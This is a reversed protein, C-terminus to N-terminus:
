KKRTYTTEQFPTDKGDQGATSLTVVFHDDDIQRVRAHLPVKGRPEDSTGSYDVTKGGDESTGTLKTIATSMTYMSIMEYQKTANNYGYIRMGEVPHGFVADHNEELIFRGGLIVSVKSTGTWEGSQGMFRIARSYKGARKALFEQPAGPSSPSAGQQANAGPKEEHGQAFVPVSLILIAAVLVVPTRLHTLM